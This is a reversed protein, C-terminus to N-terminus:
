HYTKANYQAFQIIQKDRITIVLEKSKSIECIGYSKGPVSINAVKNFLRSFRKLKDDCTMVLTGDDLTCTDYVNYTEYKDDDFIMGYEKKSLIKHPVKAVALGDVNDLANRISDDLTFSLGKFSQLTKDIKDQEDKMSRMRKMQVFLQAEGMNDIEGVRHTVKDLVENVHSAAANLRETIQKCRENVNELSRSELEEIRSVLERKYEKIEKIVETKVNSM